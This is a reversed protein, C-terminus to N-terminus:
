ISQLDEETGFRVGQAKLRRYTLHREYRWRRM